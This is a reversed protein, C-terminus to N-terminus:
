FGFTKLERLQVTSKLDRALGRTIQRQGNLTITRSPNTGASPLPRVEPELDAYLMEESYGLDRIAKRALAIAEEKKVNLPGYFDEFRYPSKMDYFSHGSEFSQVFGFMFRYLNGNKFQFVGEPKNDGLLTFERVEVVSCRQEPLDLKEAFEGVRPMLVTLVANSYAFVLNTM